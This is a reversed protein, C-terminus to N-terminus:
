DLGALRLAGNGTLTRRLADIQGLHYNFHGSLHLLFQRTAIPRGLVPEPFPDDLASDDLTRLVGTVLLRVAELRPALEKRTISSPAFEAPRDRTYPIGGLQRGVYERLNGELHLLLNGASNTIGPVTRHLTTDDPFAELEQCARRLDRDFLEALELAFPM